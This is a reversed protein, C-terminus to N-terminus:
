VALIGACSIAGMLGDNLHAGACLFRRATELMIDRPSDHFRDIGVVIGLRKELKRVSSCALFFFGARHRM